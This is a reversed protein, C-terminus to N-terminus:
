SAAAPVITVPCPAEPSSDVGVVVRTTMPDEEDAAGLTDVETGSCGHWLDRLARSRHAGGPPRDRQGVLGFRTVMFVDCRAVDSGFSGM